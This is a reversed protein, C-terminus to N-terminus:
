MMTLVIFERGANSKRTNVKIDVKCSSDDAFMDILADISQQATPSITSYITGDVAKLYGTAVEEGTDHSVDLGLAAGCVTIISGKVSDLTEAGTINFVDKPGFNAGNTIRRAM